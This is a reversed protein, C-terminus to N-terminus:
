LVHLSSEDKRVQTQLLILTLCLKVGWCQLVCQEVLQYRRGLVRLMSTLQGIVAWHWTVHQGIFASLTRYNGPAWSICRHLCQHWQNVSTVVVDSDRTYVDWRVRVWQLLAPLRIITKARQSLTLQSLTLM